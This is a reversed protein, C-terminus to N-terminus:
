TEELIEVALQPKTKFTLDEPVKCKERKEKFEDTFWKEPM